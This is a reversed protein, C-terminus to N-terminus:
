ILFIIKKMFGIKENVPLVAYVEDTKWIKALFEIYNRHHGDMKTEVYLIKM